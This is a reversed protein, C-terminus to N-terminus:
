CARLSDVFKKYVDWNKLNKISDGPSLAQVMFVVGFANKFNIATVAVVPYLSTSDAYNGKAIAQYAAHGNIKLKKGQIIKMNQMGWPLFNGSIYGALTKQNYRYFEKDTVLKKNQYWEVSLWGGDVSWYRKDHVVDVVFEHRNPFVGDRKFTYFSPDPMTICFQNDPAIYVNKVIKGQLALSPTMYSVLALVSLYFYGMKFIKM